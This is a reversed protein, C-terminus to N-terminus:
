TWKTSHWTSNAETKDKEISKSRWKWLKWKQFSPPYFCCPGRGSEIEGFLSERGEVHYCPLSSSFSAVPFPPSHSDWLWLVKLRLFAQPNPFGFTGKGPVAKGSCQVWQKSPFIFRKIGKWHVGFVFLFFRRSSSNSILRRLYALFRRPSVARRSAM